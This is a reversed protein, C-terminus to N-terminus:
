NCVCMQAGSSLDVRCHFHISRGKATMPSLGLGQEKSVCTSKHATHTDKFFMIELEMTDKNSANTLSTKHM